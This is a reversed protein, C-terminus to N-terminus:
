DIKRGIKKEFHNILETMLNNTDSRLKKIKNIDENDMHYKKKLISKNVTLISLQFKLNIIQMEIDEFFHTQRPDLDPDNMIDLLTDIRYNIKTLQNKVGEIQTINVNGEDQLRVRAREARFKKFFNDVLEDEPGYEYDGTENGSQCYVLDIFALTMFM